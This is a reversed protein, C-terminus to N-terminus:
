TGRAEASEGFQTQFSALLGDFLPLAAQIRDEDREHLTTIGSLASAIGTTEPRSYRGDKLDIDHVIDAVARLAAGELGFRALLTEFTCSEGEHTFEGDYMDFRLEGPKGEYSDADVFRMRANPDIFKRILWASSMRDVRVGRRTVWVAGDQPMGGIRTNDAMAREGEELEALAREAAARGPAGLHDREIAERLRRRLRGAELRPSPGGKASHARAVIQAYERNRAEAFAGILEERTPGALIQIRGLTGEGGNALVERLIWHFDERAGETDPLLHAANKLGLAGIAKLRRHVKVRMYAPESPLHHMLLLWGSPEGPERRPPDQTESVTLDNMSEIM